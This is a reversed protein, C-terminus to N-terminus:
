SDHYSVKGRLKDPINITQPNDNRHRLLRITQLHRKKELVGLDNILPCRDIVVECLNPANTDDISINVGRDNMSAETSRLSSIDALHLCDSLKLKTLHNLGKLSPLKKIRLDQLTLENLSRLQSVENVQEVPVNSLTLRRLSHLGSISSIDSLSVCGFIELEELNELDALGRLSIVKKCDVLVFRLLESLMTLEAIEIGQYKVIKLSNVNRIYKFVELSIPSVFELSPVYTRSLPM